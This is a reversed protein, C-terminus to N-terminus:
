PRRRPRRRDERWSLPGPLDLSKGRRSNWTFPGLHLSWSSYGHETFHIRVLGLNIQKRFRLPSM